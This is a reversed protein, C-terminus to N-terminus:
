LIYTARAERIPDTKFWEGGKKPEKIKALRTEGMKGEKIM